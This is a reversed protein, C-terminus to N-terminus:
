AHPSASGIRSFTTALQDALALLADRASMFRAHLERGRDEIDALLDSLSPADADDPAMRAQQRRVLAALVQLDHLEGLLDQHQRLRAVAPSAGPLRHRRAVELGYRLKKAEIRLDHLREPAYMAGSREAARAVRDARDAVRAALAARDVRQRAGRTRALHHRVRAVLRDIDADDIRKLARARRAAGVEILRADVRECAPELDPRRAAIAALLTRSVDVERIPGLVRTLRRLRQRVKRRERAHGAALRLAERLRRTAVRVDHLAGADGHRARVWAHALVELSTAPGPAGPPM